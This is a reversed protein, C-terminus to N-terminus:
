DPPNPSISSQKELEAVRAYLKSINTLLFMNRKFEAFPIAPAGGIKLGAPVSRPIGSMAAAQVGSGIEIHGSVGVKGALVVYDGLRTSGSIGVQSCLICHRGIRVNHGIQVLNDIKTGEGIWTRGFRARDVSTNSGIEVDDDIQVIGTQPIKQQRGNKFEYGFGDSGIVVGSHLIVRNGLVCRDGISVNPHLRCDEGVVAGAGVVTNSGIMSRAGVVAGRGIVAGPEISADPSVKADEHVFARPHIGPEFKEPPPLFKELIAAFAGAPDACPVLLSGAPFEMGQPLEGPVLVVGARTTQFTKGYRADAFFALEDPGADALSAAGYIIREPDAFDAPLSIGASNCLERLTM